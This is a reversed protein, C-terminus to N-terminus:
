FYLSLRDKRPTLAPEALLGVLNLGLRLGVIPHHPFPTCRISHSRNRVMLTVGAWNVCGKDKLTRRDLLFAFNDDCIYSARAQCSSARATDFCGEWRRFTLYTPEARTVVGRRCRCVQLVQCSRSLYHGASPVVEPNAGYYPNYRGIDPVM